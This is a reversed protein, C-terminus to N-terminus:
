AEILTSATYDGWVKSLLFLFMFFIKAVASVAASRSIVNVAIPLVATNAM